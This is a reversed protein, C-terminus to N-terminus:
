YENLDDPFDINDLSNFNEVTGVFHIEVDYSSSNFTQNGTILVDLYSLHNEEVTAVITAKNVKLTGMGDLLTALKQPDLKLTYTNDKKSTSDFLASLENTSFDLFPNYVALTKTTDIGINSAVSQSKTGMNNLYTKGDKIYFDLYDDIKNGQSELGMIAKLQMDGNQILDLKLSIKQETKTNYEIEGVISGSKAKLTTNLADFVVQIDEKNKSSSCGCLSFALCLVLLRMLIKKM